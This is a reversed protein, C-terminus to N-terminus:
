PQMIVIDDPYEEDYDDDDYEYEDNHYKLFIDELMPMVADSEEPTLLVRMDMSKGDDVEDPERGVLLIPDLLRVLHYEKGRHEFTLLVEVEEDDEEDEDDDEEEEDDEELEGVLTLTQPTRQLVLEEGFEESVIAEAVPFLDDMVKNDSIEVPILQDPDSPLTYCLAVSYDCPVAITYEVGNVVCTSDAYCEIFKLMNGSSGGESKDLFPIPVGELDAPIRRLGSAVNNKDGAFLLSPTNRPSYNATTRAVFPLRQNLAPAFAAELGILSTLLLISAVLMVASSSCNRMMETM